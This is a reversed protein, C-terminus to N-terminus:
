SGAHGSSRGEDGAMQNRKDQTVHPQSRGSLWVARLYLSIRCAGEKATQCRQHMCSVVAIVFRAKLFRFMVSTM